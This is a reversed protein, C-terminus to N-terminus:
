WALVARLACLHQQRWSHYSETASRTCDTWGRPWGMLTEVFPPNLVAKQSGTPGDTPTTPDPRSAQSALHIGPGSTGLRATPTLWDRATTGLDQFVGARGKPGKADRAVPTPWAQAATGLRMGAGNGNKHIEMLRAARTEYQEPTVSYGADFAAPTPWQRVARDTLTTGHTGTTDPNGGSARADTATATPWCGSGNASTRLASKPRESVSGNRMSGSIPWRDSFTESGGVALLSGQCTKWSCSAPDWMAFSPSSSRGSGGLTTVDPGSGSKPGRSARSGPLSSIWAAAGRAVTSPLLTTGCLLRIWPRTKWGRWSVPRQTPTGSSQVWLAIGGGSESPMARSDWASSSDEQAPASPLARSPVHLWM